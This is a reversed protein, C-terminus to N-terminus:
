QIEAGGLGCAVDSNLGPVIGLIENACGGMVDFSLQLIRERSTSVRHNVRVLWEIPDNSVTEFKDPAPLLSVAVGHLATRRAM